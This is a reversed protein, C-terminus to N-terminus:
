YLLFIVTEWLMLGGLFSFANMALVLKANGSRRPPLLRNLLWSEAVVVMAEMFWVWHDGFLDEGFAAEPLFAALHLAPHTVLSCLAVRALEEGRHYGMLIAAGCEFILTLLLSFLYFVIPYAAGGSDNWLVGTLIIFSTLSFLLAALPPTKGASLARGSSDPAEDKRHRWVWLAFIVSM